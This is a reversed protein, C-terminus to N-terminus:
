TGTNAPHASTSSSRPSCGNWASRRAACGSGSARPVVAQVGLTAPGDSTDALYQALETSGALLMLLDGYLNLTAGTVAPSQTLAAFKEATPADLWVLGTDIQVTGDDSVAEWHTLEEASPKHLYAHVRHGGNGSVYVGHNHGM